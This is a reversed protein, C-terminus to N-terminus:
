KLREALMSSFIRVGAGICKEDVAFGASHPMSVVGNAFDSGGLLFYVGPIRAQFYAFDDNRNDPITGYLAIARDNGYIGAVSRLAETALHSDNQVVAREFSFAVDLMKKSYESEGIKRRLLPIVSEMQGVDSASILTSISIEKKTEAVQFDPRVVVYDKFITNPNGLGIQPDILNRADDFKGGREVNQIQSILNKTFSVIAENEKSNKYTIKLTKYSAYLWGPKTAILGSVMPAVHLAYVEQPNIVDLLGDDLMAKAGKYNEEAPQFIFYVTGHLNGKQSALVNAIGLGITTHVDHGCHHAVGKSTSKFAVQDQGDSAIADMDARWAIRKGEKDGKLIGVVGYGGINTKVELGLSRLYNAVRASTRNEQESLEPYAHLDRRIKVLSDFIDTTRQGINKHLSSEIVLDQGFVSGSSFLLLIVLLRKASRKKASM